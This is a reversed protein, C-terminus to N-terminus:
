IKKIISLLKEPEWAKSTIYNLRGTKDIIVTKMTHNITGKRSLMLIGYLKTLRKIMECDGTLFSYSSLDIDFGKAYQKLVEPTDNEPDFSITIFKVDNHLGQKKVLKQLDAMKKTAAPCLTPVACRTFIFNMVVIKGELNKNTITNGNQDYLAFPPIPKDIKVLSRLQPTSSNRSYMQNIEDVQKEYEPDYLSINSLQLPRFETILTGKIKKELYDTKLDEPAVKVVIPPCSPKILSLTLSHNEEDVKTVEGIIPLYGFVKCISCISLILTILLSRKM